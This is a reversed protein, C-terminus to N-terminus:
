ASSRRDNSRGAEEFARVAQEGAVVPLKTM